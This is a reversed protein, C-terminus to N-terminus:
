EGYPYHSPQDLWEKRSQLYRGKEACTPHFGYTSTGRWAHFLLTCDPGSPLLLLAGIQIKGSQCYCRGATGPKGKRWTIYICPSSRETEESDGSLGLYTGLPFSPFHNLRTKRKQTPRERGRLVFGFLVNCQQRSEM